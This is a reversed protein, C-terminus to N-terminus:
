GSHHPPCGKSPVRRDPEADTGPTLGILYRQVLDEVMAVTSPRPLAGFKQTTAVNVIGHVASWLTRATRTTTEVDEVGSIRALLPELRSAPAYLRELFWDPSEPLAHPQHSQLLHWLRTHEYAFDAYTTAFARVAEVVKRGDIAASLSQDLEDLVEAEVRLLIEDLNKFLNYLTGPAYGIERAIERASLEAAGNTEVIRRTADLIMRRLEDPTHQARRGM